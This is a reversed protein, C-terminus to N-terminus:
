RRAQRRARAYLVPGHLMGLRERRLLAADIGADVSREHKHQTYRLGRVASRAMHRFGPGTLAHKFLYATLGTGYGYLQDSLSELDRRHRHWVIAGPEYAITWGAM